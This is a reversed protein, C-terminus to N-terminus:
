QHWWDELYPEFGRRGTPLMPGSSSSSNSDAGRRAMGRGLQHMCLAAEVFGLFKADGKVQNNAEGLRPRAWEEYWPYYSGRIRFKTSMTRNFTEIWHHSAECCSKSVGIYSFAPFAAYQHLYAVMTCECHMRAAVEYIRVRTTMKEEARSVDPGSVRALEYKRYISELLDQWEQQNSPWSLITPRKKEASIVTLNPSFFLSRMRKSNAFRLLTFVHRHFVVLKEIARRLQLPKHITDPPQGGPLVKEAWYDCASKGKVTLDLVSAAHSQVREWRSRLLALEAMDLKWDSHCFQLLCDRLGLGTIRFSAICSFFTQHLEVQDCRTEQEPTIGNRWLHYQRRFGEIVEWRKSHKTQLRANSYKYIQLFLDDYFPQLNEDDMDLGPSVERLNVNPSKLGSFTYYKTDSLNKLASYITTLHEVITKSPIEENTAVVLQLPKLNLGIAVAPSSENVSVYALADLVGEPDNTLQGSIKNFRRTTFAAAALSVVANLDVKKPDFKDSGVNNPDMKEPDEDSGM